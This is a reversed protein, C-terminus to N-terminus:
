SLFYLIPVPIAQAQVPMMEKHGLDNIATLLSESIALSDFSNNAGPLAALNEVTEIAM